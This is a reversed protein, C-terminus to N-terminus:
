GMMQRWRTESGGSETGGAWALVRRWKGERDEGEAPRQRRMQRSEVAGRRGEGRRM